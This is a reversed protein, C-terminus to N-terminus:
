LNWHKYIPKYLKTVYLIISILRLLNKFSKNFRFKLINFIVRQLYDLTDKFIKLILFLNKTKKQLYIYCSIKHIISLKSNTFKKKDSSSNGIHIFKSSPVEMIYKGKKISRDCLDTDEFYMFFREDFGGLKNFFDRNILYCCGELFECCMNGEPLNNSNILVKKGKLQNLYTVTGNTRRQMEENYLSPSLIGINDEDKRYENILKQIGDTNLILDPNVTLILPTKAYNIALNAAKGYGLNKKSIIIKINKFDKVIENLHNSNSNDVIITKFKKLINLNKKVLFESRYTVMILTLDNYIDM